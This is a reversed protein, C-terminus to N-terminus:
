HFTLERVFWVLNLGFLIGTTFLFVTTGTWVMFPGAKPWSLGIINTWTQNKCKSRTIFLSVIAWFLGTVAFLASILAHSVADLFHESLLRENLEPNALIDEPKIGRNAAAKELSDKRIDYFALVFDSAIFVLLFAM